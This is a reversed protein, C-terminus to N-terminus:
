ILNKMATNNLVKGAAYKRAFEEVSRKLVVEDHWNGLAQEIQKIEGIRSKLSGDLKFKHYLKLASALIKLDKRIKHIDENTAKRFNLKRIKQGRGKIIEKIKYVFQERSMLKDLGGNRNHSHEPGAEKLKRMAKLFTIYSRSEKEKMFNLYLELEKGAKRSNVMLNRNMQVERVKGAKKFLKKYSSYNKRADFKGETFEELIHYAARLKKLAVRLEHIEDFDPESSLGNFFVTFVRVQEKYYKRLYKVRM